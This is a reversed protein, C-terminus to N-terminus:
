LITSSKSGSIISSILARMASPLHSIVEEAHTSVSLFIGEVATVNGLDVGGATHLIIIMATSEASLLCEVTPATRRALFQEAVTFLMPVVATNGGLDTDGGNINGLAAATQFGSEDNVTYAVVAATRSASVYFRCDVHHCPGDEGGDFEASEAFIEMLCLSYAILNRQHIM